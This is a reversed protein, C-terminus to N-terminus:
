KRFVRRQKKKLGPSSELNMEKICAKLNSLFKKVKVIDKSGPLIEVGSSVDVADPMSSVVADKINDPNLGGALIFPFKNGFAKAKRFDWSIANGGPFRGKCYEVLYSCALYKKANCINPEDKIYLAKIVILKKEKLKLILENTENGHLQVADLHCYDAKEMISSFPEDM